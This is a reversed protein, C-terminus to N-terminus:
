HHPPSISRVPAPLRELLLEIAQLREACLDRTPCDHRQACGLAVAATCRALEPDSGRGVWKLALDLGALCTPSSLTGM